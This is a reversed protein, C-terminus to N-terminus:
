LGPADRERWKRPRYARNSSVKQAHRTDTCTATCPVSQVIGGRFLLGIVGFIALSCSKSGTGDERM